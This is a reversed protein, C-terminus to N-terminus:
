LQDMTPRKEPDVTLCAKVKIWFVLNEPDTEQEILPIIEADVEDQTLGALASSNITKGEKILRNRIFAFPPLVEDDTYSLGGKLLSACLLGMAWVDRKRGYRVNFTSIDPNPNELALFRATEPSEWGFTSWVQEVLGLTQPYTFMLLPHNKDQQMACVINLPSIDGHFLFSQQVMSASLVHNKDISYNVQSPIYELSHLQKVALWLGNLSRPPLPESHDKLWSVFSTSTKKEFYCAKKWSFACSSNIAVEPLVGEGQSNLQHLNEWAQVFLLQDMKRIPKKLWMSGTICDWADKSHLQVFMHNSFAYVHRPCDEGRKEFTKEHRTNWQLMMQHIKAELLTKEDATLGIDALHAPWRLAPVNQNKLSIGSTM